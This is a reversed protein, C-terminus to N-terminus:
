EKNSYSPYVVPITFKIRSNTGSKSTSEGGGGLEVSLIKLKANANIKESDDVLVAVDFDIKHVVRGRAGRPNYEPGHQKTTGKEVDYAEPNVEGNNDKLRESAKLIGESIEVITTEVFDSLNM